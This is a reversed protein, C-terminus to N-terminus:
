ASVPEGSPMNAQESSPSSIDNQAPVRGHLFVERAKELKAENLGNTDVVFDTIKEVEFETFHNARLDDEWKLWTKTNAPDVTDWEIHSPELTKIIIYATRKKNRARVMDQWGKDELDPVFGKNPVHKGPPSPM